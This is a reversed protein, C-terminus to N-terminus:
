VMIDNRMHRYPRHIHMTKYIININMVRYNIDSYNELYYSFM